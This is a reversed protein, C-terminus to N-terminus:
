ESRRRRVRNAISRGGGSGRGSASDTDSEGRPRTQIPVDFRMGGQWQLIRYDAAVPGLLEYLVDVRQHDPCLDLVHYGRERVYGNTRKTCGPGDCEQLPFVGRLYRDEPVMQVIEEIRYRQFCRRAEDETLHGGDDVCHGLVTGSAGASRAGAWGGSGTNETYEVFRWRANTGTQECRGVRISEM